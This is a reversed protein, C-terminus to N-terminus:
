EETDQTDIDDLGHLPEIPDGGWLVRGLCYVFLGTVFSVSLGMIIWGGLTM